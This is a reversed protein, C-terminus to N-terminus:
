DHKLVEMKSEKLMDAALQDPYGGAYVL